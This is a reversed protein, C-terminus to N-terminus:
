MWTLAATTVPSADLWVINLSPYSEAIIVMNTGLVPISMEVM